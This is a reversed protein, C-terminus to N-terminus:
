TQRAPFLLIRHRSLSLRSRFEQQCSAASKLLEEPSPFDFTGVVKERRPDPEIWTSHVFQPQSSMHPYDDAM